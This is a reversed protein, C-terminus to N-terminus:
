REHAWELGDWPLHAGEPLPAGGGLRFDEHDLIPQAILNSLAWVAPCADDNNVVAVARHPNTLSLDGDAVWIQTAHAKMARVKAGFSEASLPVRVEMGIASPLEGPEAHRWGEPVQGIAALGADQAAEDVYSFLIRQVDWTGSERLRRVAALTIEHARIHDPHGYGGEPGYTLVLHPRLEAMTDALADVGEEGSSVFARPHSHAPDGAMGSDRWRGAGGLFRGSVGLEALAQALEGIRFGGLQDAEDAILQQFTEGIVEGQEGLTCTVVTVEAGAQGLAHLTGGMTISEDDPHAHVALVRLGRLDPSTEM